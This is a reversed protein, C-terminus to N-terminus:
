NFKLIHFLTIEKTIYIFRFIQKGSLVFFQLLFYNWNQSVTHGDSNAIM